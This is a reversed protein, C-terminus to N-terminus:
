VIALSRPLLLTSVVRIRPCDIAQHRFLAFEDILARLHSVFENVTREVRPLKV